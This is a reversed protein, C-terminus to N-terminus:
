LGDPETTGDPKMQTMRHRGLVELPHGTQLGTLLTPYDLWTVWQIIRTPTDNEEEISEM